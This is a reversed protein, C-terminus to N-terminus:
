GEKSIFEEVIRDIGRQSEQRSDLTDREIDLIQSILSAEINEHKSKRLKEMVKKLDDWTSM